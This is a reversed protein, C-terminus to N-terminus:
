ATDSPAASRIPPRAGPRYLVVTLDDPKSPMGEKPEQMRKHCAQVLKNIATELPGTRALEIIEPLHLNDFVGDTALLLTDRRQLRLSPGVDIRMEPLGIMNSVIHREEHHMAEDHELLGSEVAYGVPSHSITQLKVKGRQGVVLVESDGVHYPRIRDGDIEVAALTTAAGVGLELVRANAEDFGNLIGHRVDFQATTSHNVAEKLADLALRAAQDGMPQGGFGDAVALVYRAEGIPLLAVADENAKEKGPCRTTWVRVEGSALRYPVSTEMDTALYLVSHALDEHPM